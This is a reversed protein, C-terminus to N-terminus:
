RNDSTDRLGHIPPCRWGKQFIWHFRIFFLYRLERAAGKKKIQTFILKQKFCSTTPSSINLHIHRCQISCSDKSLATRIFLSSTVSVDPYFSAVTVRYHSASRKACIQGCSIIIHARSSPRWWRSIITASCEPVGRDISHTRIYKKKSLIYKIIIHRERHGIKEINENSDMWNEIILLSAYMKGKLENLWILAILTLLIYKFIISLYISIIQIISFIYMEDAKVTLIINVTARRKGDCSNSRPMDVCSWSMQDVKWRTERCFKKWEISLSQKQM